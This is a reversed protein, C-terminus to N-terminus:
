GTLAAVKLPISVPLNYETRKAICCDHLALLFGRAGDRSPQLNQFLNEWAEENEGNHEVLHLAALFEAVPDLSFQLFELLGETRQLIQLKETLYRLMESPNGSKELAARLLDERVAIPHYQQRLSEWAITKASQRVTYDDPDEPQRNANLTNLYSLFLDPISDPLRGREPHEKRVVMQEVYLKVLLV